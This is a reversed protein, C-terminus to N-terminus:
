LQGRRILVVRLDRIVFFLALSGAECYDTGEEYDRVILTDENVDCWRNTISLVLTGSFGNALKSINKWLVHFREKLVLNFREFVAPM